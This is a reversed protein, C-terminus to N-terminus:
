LVTEYNLVIKILFQWLIVSINKFTANFVMFRFRLRNAIPLFDSSNEIKNTHKRFTTQLFSM